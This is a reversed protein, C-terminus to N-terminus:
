SPSSIVKGIRQAHLALGRVSMHRHDDSEVMEQVTEVESPTLRTPVVRPCSSQDDLECGADARCWSHYRSASLRTIRLAANLPLVRGAREIARLLVRKADGEPLREYDLRIKSVRLTAILLGVVAGLLATRQHYQHIEALLDARDRAAPDCTVVDPVGRHIWSRITSRPIELEAFLDRDGSECIAEQIRYDYTRRSHSTQM